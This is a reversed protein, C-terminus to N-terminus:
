KAQESRKQQARKAKRKKEREFLKIVLEVERKELQVREERLRAAEKEMEATETGLEARVALAQDDMEEDATENGNDEDESALDVIDKQVPQRVKDYKVVEM